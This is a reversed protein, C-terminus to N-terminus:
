KIVSLIDSITTVIKAPTLQSGHQTIQKNISDINLLDDKMKFFEEYTIDGNRYLALLGTAKSKYIELLM